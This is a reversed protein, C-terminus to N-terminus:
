EADDGKAFIGIQPSELLLPTKFVALGDEDWRPPSEFASESESQLAFICLVCLPYWPLEDSPGGADHSTAAAVGCSGDM